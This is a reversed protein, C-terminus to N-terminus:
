ASAPDPHEEARRTAAAILPPDSDIGRGEIATFGLDRARHATRILWGGRGCGLDLIRIAHHRHAHLDTLAAEIRAWTAHDHPSDPDTAGAWVVPQSTTAFTLM